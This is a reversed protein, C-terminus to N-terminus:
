PRLARLTLDTATGYALHASLDKALTKVDYKWIPEYVGALPLTVYDSSWVTAGFIPGAWWPRRRLVVAYATAWGTGYLWHMANSIAPAQEVPPDLSTVAAVIKRGVQGPAPADEWRELDRVIEWELFSAESGGRRARSYWVFDLALTGAVGAVAGRLARRVPGSRRAM